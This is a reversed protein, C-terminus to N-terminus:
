AALLAPSEANTNQEPEKVHIRFGRSAEGMEMVLTSVM